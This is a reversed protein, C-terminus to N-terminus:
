LKLGDSEVEKKRSAPSPFNDARRAILFHFQRKEGFVRLFRERVRV